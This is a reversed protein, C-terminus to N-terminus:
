DGWRFLLVEVGEEGLEARDGGYAEFLAAVLSAAALGFDCDGVFCGVVSDQGFFPKEEVSGFNDNFFKQAFFLQVL